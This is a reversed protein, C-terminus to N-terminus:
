MEYGAQSLVGLMVESDVQNKACGLTVVAARGRFEQAGVGNAQDPTLSIM